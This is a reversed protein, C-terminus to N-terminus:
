TRRHEAGGGAPRQHGTCGARALVRARAGGDRSGAAGVMDARDVLHLEICVTGAPSDYPALSISTGPAAQVVVPRHSDDRLDIAWLTPAGGERGRVVLHHDVATLSLPRRGPAEDLLQRVVRGDHEELTVRYGDGYERSHVLMRTGAVEVPEVAYDVGETRGRASSVELTGLDVLWEEATLRSAARIVALSGDGSTRLSVHFRDDTEELLLAASRDSVDYAWVQFPRDADDHRVSLLTRGDPAWALGYYARESVVEAQEQRVDADLPLLRLEYAEAGLTDVTFALWAADPSVAVDGCRVFGTSTLAELDVVARELGDYGM